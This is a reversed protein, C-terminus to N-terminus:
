DETNTVDYVTEIEIHPEGTEHYHEIGLPEIKEYWESHAREMAETEDKAHVEVVYTHTKTIEVKYRNPM